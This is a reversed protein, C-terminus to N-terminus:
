AIDIAKKAKTCNKSNKMFQAKSEQTVDHLTDSILSYVSGMNM